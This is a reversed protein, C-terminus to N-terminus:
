LHRRHRKDYLYDFILYGLLSLFLIVGVIIGIKIGIALLFM